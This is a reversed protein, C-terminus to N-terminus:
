NGSFEDCDFGKGDAVSVLDFRDILDLLAPNKVAMACVTENEISMANVKKKYLIDANQCLRFFTGIKYGTSYSHTTKISSRLYSLPPIISQPLSRIGFHSRKFM